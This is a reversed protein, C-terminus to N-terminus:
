YKGQNNSGKFEPSVTQDDIGTKGHWGIQVGFSCGSMAFMCLVLGASYVAIWVKEM